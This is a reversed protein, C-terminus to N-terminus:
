STGLGANKSFVKAKKDNNADWSREDRWGTKSNTGGEVEDMRMESLGGRVGHEGFEGEADEAGGRGAADSLEQPVEADFSDEADLSEFAAHFFALEEGGEEVDGDEVAAVEAALAAPDIDGGVCVLDGGLLHVAEDGVGFTFSIAEKADEAAFGEEVGAKEVDEGTVGIAIELDERVSLADGIFDCGPQGLDPVCGREDGDFAVFDDTVFASAIDVDEFAGEAAEFGGEAGSEEGADGGADALGIDLFEEGFRPEALEDLLPNMVDPVVGVTRDSGVHVGLEGQSGLLEDFDAAEDNFHASLHGDPNDIGIVSVVPFRETRHGGTDGVM